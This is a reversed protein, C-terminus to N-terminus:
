NPYRAERSRKVFNGMKNFFYDQFGKRSMERSLHLRCVENILQFRQDRSKNKAKESESDELLIKLIALRFFLACSKIKIDTHLIYNVKFYM